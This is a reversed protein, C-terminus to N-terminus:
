SAPEPRRLGLLEAARAKREEAEKMGNKIEEEDLLELLRAVAPPMIRDKEWAIVVDASLPPTLPLWVFGSKPDPNYIGELALVDGAGAQALLWANYILNFRAVYRVKPSLEGFWAAFENNADAQISTLLPRGVLDKPSVASLKGLPGDRRTIVGWRNSRKLKRRSWVTADIEGIFVGLDTVGSRLEARVTEASGSVIRVTVRPAERQLRAIASALPALCPTEGAAIRIEGSLADEAAIEAKTRDFLETIMLAREYFLRGKETLTLRRNSREFLKHGLEEELDMFQRSLTPQTVHVRACAGSISGAKVAAIFYRLVRIDM